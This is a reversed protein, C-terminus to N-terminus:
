FNARIYVNSVTRDTYDKSYYGGVSSPDAIADETEVWAHGERGEETEVLGTVYSSEIGLDQYLMHLTIAREQCTGATMGRWDGNWVQSMWVEGPPGQAEIREEEIEEPKLGEERAIEYSHQIEDRVFDVAERPSEGHGSRFKEVLEDPTDDVRIDYEDHFVLRYGEDLRPRTFSRETVVM